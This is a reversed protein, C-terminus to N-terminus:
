VPLGGEKRALQEGEKRGVLYVDLYDYKFDVVINAEGDDLVQMDALTIRVRQLGLKLLVLACIKHWNDRAAVTSPHNPNLEEM